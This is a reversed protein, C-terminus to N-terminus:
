KDVIILVLIANTHAATATNATAAAGFAEASATSRTSARWAMSSNRAAACPQKLMVPSIASTVFLEIGSYRWAIPTRSMTFFSGTSLWVAKPHPASGQGNRRAGSM